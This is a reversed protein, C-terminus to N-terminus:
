DLPENAVILKCKGIVRNHAADWISFELNPILVLYVPSSIKIMMKIGPRLELDPNMVVECNPIVKLNYYLSINDRDKFSTRATSNLTVDAILFLDLKGFDTAIAVMGRMVQEKTVGTSFILGVYDGAVAQPIAIGQKEISTVTVVLSVGSFGMLNIIQGRSVKGTSLKGIVAVDKGPIDFVDEVPMYFSSDVLNVVVPPPIPRRAPRQAFAWVVFLQLLLIFVPRM